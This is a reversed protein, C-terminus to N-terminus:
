ILGSMSEFGAVLPRFLGTGPRGYSCILFSSCKNFGAPADRAMASRGSWVNPDNADIKAPRASTQKVESLSWFLRRTPIDALHWYAVDIV